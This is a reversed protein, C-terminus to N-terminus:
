DVDRGKEAGGGRRCRRGEQPTHFGLTPTPLASPSPPAEPTERPVPRLTRTAKRGREEGKGGGWKQPSSPRTPFRHTGAPFCRRAPPAQKGGSALEMGGDPSRKGPVAGRNRVARPSALALRGTEPSWPRIPKAAEEKRQNTAEERGVRSRVAFGSQFDGSVGM